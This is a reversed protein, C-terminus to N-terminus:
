ITLYFARCFIKLILVSRVPSISNNNSRNNSRNNSLLSSQNCSLLSSRNNSWNVQSKERINYLINM